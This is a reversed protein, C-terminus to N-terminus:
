HSHHNTNSGGDIINGTASINGKVDIPGVIEFNGTLVATAGGGGM